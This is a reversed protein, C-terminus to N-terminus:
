NCSQQNYGVESFAAAVCSQPSAKVKPAVFHVQFLNLNYIISIMETVWKEKM